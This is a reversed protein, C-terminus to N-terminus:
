PQIERLRTDTLDLQGTAEKPLVFRLRTQDKFSSKVEFEM